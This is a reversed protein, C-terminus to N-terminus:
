PTAPELALELTGPTLRLPLGYWAAGDPTSRGTAQLMLQATVAPKSCRVGMCGMRCRMPMCEVRDIRAGGQM